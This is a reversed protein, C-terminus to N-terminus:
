EWPVLMFDTIVAVLNGTKDYGRYTPYVGDGYGSSFMVVTGIHTEYRYWNRNQLAALAREDFKDGRIKRQTEYFKLATADMFAGTGSDVAYGFFEGKKLKAINQGPFVALEWSAIQGPAFVIKAMAIRKDDGSDAIALAIPFKGIPVSKSFPDGCFVLPDCAVLKGTSIRISGIDQVHFRYKTGDVSAEFGETYAENFIPGARLKSLTEPAKTIAPPTPECAATVVLMLLAILRATTPAVAKITASCQSNREDLNTSNM